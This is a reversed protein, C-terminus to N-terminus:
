AGEPYQHTPRSLAVKVSDVKPWSFQRFVRLSGGSYDRRLEPPRTCAKSNYSKDHLILSGAKDFLVQAILNKDMM